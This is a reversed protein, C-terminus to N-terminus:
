VPRQVPVSASSIKQLLYSGGDFKACSNPPLHSVYGILLFQGDNPRSRLLQHLQDFHNSPLGDVTTWAIDNLKGTKCDILPVTSSLQWRAIKEM